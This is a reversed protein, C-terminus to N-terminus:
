RMRREPQFDYIERDARELLYEYGRGDKSIGYREVVDDVAEKANMGARLNWEMHVVLNRLISSM